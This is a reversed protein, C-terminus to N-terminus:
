MSILNGYERLSLIPLSFSTASLMCFDHIVFNAGMRHCSLANFGRLGQRYKLYIKKTEGTETNYARTEMFRSTALIHLYLIWNGDPTYVPFWDNGKEFTLQEPEGGKLPIKYIYRAGSKGPSTIVHSDDPCFSSKVFANSTEEALDWTDGTEFDYVAIIQPIQMKLYVLYRNNHSLVGHSANELVVSKERTEINIREINSGTYTKGTGSGSYLHNTFYVEKSDNTFCPFKPEHGGQSNADILKVPESGDVPYLWISFNRDPEWIDIAIWKGDPSWNGHHMIRYEAFTLQTGFNPEWEALATGTMVVAYLIFMIFSVKGKM